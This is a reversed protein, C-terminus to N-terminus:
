RSNITLSGTRGALRKEASESDRCLTKNTLLLSVLNHLKKGDADLKKVKVEVGLYKKKCSKKAGYVM